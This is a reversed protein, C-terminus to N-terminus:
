PPSHAALTMCRLSALASMLPFSVNKLTVGKPLYTFFIFLM